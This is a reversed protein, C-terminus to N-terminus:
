GGGISVGDAVAARAVVRAIKHTDLKRSGLAARVASATDFVADNIADDSPDGALATWDEPLKAIVGAIAYVADQDATSVAALPKAARTLSSSFTKVGGGRTLVADAGAGWRARALREFTAAYGGILAIRDNETIDPSGSIGDQLRTLAAAAQDKSAKLVESWLPQFLVPALGTEKQIITDFQELALLAHDFEIVAKGGHVGEPWHLRGAVVRGRRPDFQDPGVNAILLYGSGAETLASGILAAALQNVEGLGLLSGFSDYVTNAVKLGAGVMPQGLATGVSGVVNLLMKVLDNGPVSFLGAYLSLNAENVPTPRVVTLDRLEIWAAKAEGAGTVGAAKLKQRIVDPGISFPVTRREGAHDFEVLCVCLPLQETAFRRADVMHLGSLRVGFYSVGPVFASGDVRSPFRDDVIGNSASLMDAVQREVPSSKAGAFWRQANELLGM